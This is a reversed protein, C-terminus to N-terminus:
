EGMEPCLVRFSWNQILMGVQITSANELYGECGCQNYGFKMTAPITKERLPRVALNHHNSWARYTM